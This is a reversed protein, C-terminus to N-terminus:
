FPEPEKYLDDATQVLWGSELWAKIRNASAREKLKTVKMTAKVLNTYSWKDDGDDFRNIVKGLEGKLKAAKDLQKAEARTEMIEVFCGEDDCWQWSAGHGKPVPQKRARFVYTERIGEADVDIQLVTKSKRELQSGLHGRSKTESGPNLHLVGTLAVNHKATLDMWKQVIEVAEEQSNVDRSLDAYGDIILLCLNPTRELILEAARQAQHADMGALRYGKVQSSTVGAHRCLLHYFDEADQEFDLYAIMGDCPADVTWGLTREGTIMTRMIAALAHTKGAKSQAVLTHVNDRWIVGKEKL